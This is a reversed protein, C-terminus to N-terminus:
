PTPDNVIGMFLTPFNGFTAIEERLKECVGKFWEVTREAIQLAEPLAGLIADRNKDTLPESVGGPVVWAPHIRKGGLREIIQQGFQRLRIGDLALVPNKEAVGFLNTTAPDADLAALGHLMSIGGIIDSHGNLYKTTSHVAIDFGHELPRQVIPSAFTNDAVAIIGLARCIKGIAQLDAHAGVAGAAVRARRLEVDAVRECEALGRATNDSAVARL